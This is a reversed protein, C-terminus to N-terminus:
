HTFHMYMTYVHLCHHFYHKDATSHLAQAICMYHGIHKSRGPLRMPHPTVHRNQVLQSVHLFSCCGTLSHNCLQSHMCTYETPYETVTKATILLAGTTLKCKLPQM